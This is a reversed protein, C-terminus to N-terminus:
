VFLSITAFLLNQMLNVILMVVSFTKGTNNVAQLDESVFNQFNKDTLTNASLPVFKNTENLDQFENNAM